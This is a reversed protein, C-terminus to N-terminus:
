PCETPSKVSPAVIPVGCSYNLMLFNASRVARPKVTEVSSAETTVGLVQSRTLKHPGLFAAPLILNFHQWQCRPGSQGPSGLTIVPDSHFSVPAESFSVPPRSDLRSLPLVPFPSVHRNSSALSSAQFPFSPALLWPVRAARLLHFLCSFPHM